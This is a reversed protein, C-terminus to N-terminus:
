KYITKALLIMDLIQLCIQPTVQQGDLRRLPSASNNTTITTWFYNM